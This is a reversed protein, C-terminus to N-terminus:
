GIGLEVALTVMLMDPLDHVGLTHDWPLSARCCSGNLAYHGLYLM